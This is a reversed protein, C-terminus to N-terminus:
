DATFIQEEWVQLLRIQRPVLTKQHSSITQVITYCCM